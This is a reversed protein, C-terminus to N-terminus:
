MMFMKNILRNKYKNIKRVQGSRKQNSGRHYSVSRFSFTKKSVM